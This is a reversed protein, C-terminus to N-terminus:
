ASVGRMAIERCYRQVSRQEIGLAKAVAATTLGRGILKEAERKRDIADRRPQRGSPTRPPEVSAPKAAEAALMSVIEARMADGGRFWEGRLRHQAFLRHIRKEEAPGGPLVGMLGLPDASANQLTALRKGPNTTFGIKIVGSTLNEVFYIM